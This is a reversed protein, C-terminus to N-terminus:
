TGDSTKSPRVLGEETYEYRAEQNWYRNFGVGECMESYGLIQPPPTGDVMSRKLGELADRISKLRAAVLTWPYAVAAFGMRALEGAPLNETKGGEIINALMPMDLEKVCRAMADKDPLAEVFVADAGMRKFEAARAMAEDWGHILADTRALIFIDRGENRADCAAQIRAYAEGRSVVSKGKTHGCRKPWTQDEIMVGAAGAAAFSEVTRRVNMPSGYGTDGDAMLPISTVRVIEQIRACMEAMAIYGTDPLGFSSAVAFGSLFLMPFGAEEILRSSLGDYSCPFALIKSPDRHAERMIARLRSTQPSPTRGNVNNTSEPTSQPPSPNFPYPTTM